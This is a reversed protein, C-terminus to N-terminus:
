QKPSSIKSPTKGQKKAAEKRTWELKALSIDRNRDGRLVRAGREFITLLKSTYNNKLNLGITTVPDPEGRMKKLNDLEANSNIPPMSFDLGGGGTKSGVDSAEGKNLGTYDGSESSGDTVGETDLGGNSDFAGAASQQNFANVAEKAKGYNEDIKALADDLTSGDPMTQNSTPGGARMLKDVEDKPPLQLQPRACADDNCKCLQPIEKCKDPINIPTGDPNKPLNLSLGVTTGATLGGIMANPNLDKETKSNQLMAYLGGGMELLGGALKWKGDTCVPTNPPTTYCGANINTIGKYTTVGGLVILGGGIIKGMTGMNANAQHPLTCFSFVLIITLLKALSFKKLSM